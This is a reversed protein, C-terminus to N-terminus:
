KNQERIKDLNMGLDHLSLEQRKTSGVQILMDKRQELAKVIGKLIGYQRKSEILAVQAAKYKDDVDIASGVMAETPKKAAQGLELRKEADLNARQISLNMKQTEVEASAYESLTAFWAYLSPQRIFEETLDAETIKVVERLNGKFEKGAVELSLEMDLNLM